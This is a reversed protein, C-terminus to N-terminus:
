NKAAAAALIETRKHSRVYPANVYPVMMTL